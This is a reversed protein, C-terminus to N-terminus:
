TSEPNVHTEAFLPRDSAVLLTLNRACSQQPSSPQHRRRRPQVTRLVEDFWSRRVLRWGISAPDIHWSMQRRGIRTPPLPLWCGPGHYHVARGPPQEPPQAAEVFFLWHGEPLLTAVPGPQRLAHLLQTALPQRVQFVDMALGAALLVPYPHDCWFRAVDNTGMAGRYPLVAALPVPWSGRRRPAPHTGPAIPWGHWAYRLAAEGIRDGDAEVTV